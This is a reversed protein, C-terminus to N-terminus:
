RTIKSLAAHKAQEIISDLGLNGVYRPRFAPNKNPDSGQMVSLCWAGGNRQDIAIVV